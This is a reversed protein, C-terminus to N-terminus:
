VATHRASGHRKARSAPRVDTIVNAPSELALRDRRLDGCFTVLLSSLQEFHERDLGRLSMKATGESDFALTGVLHKGTKLDLKKIQTAPAAKNDSGLLSEFAERAPRSMSHKEESLGLARAIIGSFDEKVAMTLPKVWRHQIDAPSVFADVVQEPLRGMAIVKSVWGEDRNFCRAIEAQSSFDKRDLAAIFQRGQDYGSMPVCTNDQYRLLLAEADTAQEVTALLLHKQEKCIQWRLYGSLLEFLKPSGDPAPRLRVPTTLGGAANISARLARAEATEAVSKHRPVFATADVEDPDIRICELKIDNM